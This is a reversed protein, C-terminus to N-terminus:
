WASLLVSCLTNVSAAGSAPGSSTGAVFFPSRLIGAPFDPKKVSVNGLTLDDGDM